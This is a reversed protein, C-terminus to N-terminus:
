DELKDTMKKLKEEIERVRKENISNTHTLHKIKENQQSVISTISLLILLIFLILIAFLGNTLEVVGILHLGASLVGPFIVLFFMIVASLLWLLSYRLNLKHKKLLNIISVFYLLIIVICVIRLISNM